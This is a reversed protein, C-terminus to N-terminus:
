NDNCMRTKDRNRQPLDHYLSQVSIVLFPDTMLITHETTHTLYITHTISPPM